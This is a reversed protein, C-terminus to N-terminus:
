IRVFDHLHTAIEAGSSFVLYRCFPFISGEEDLYFVLSCIARFHCSAVLVALICFLVSYSLSLMVERECLHNYVQRADSWFQQGVPM